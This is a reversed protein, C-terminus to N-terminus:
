GEFPGLVVSGQPDEHKPASPKPLIEEEKSTIILM